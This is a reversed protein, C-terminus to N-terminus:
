IRGRMEIHPDTRPDTHGDMLMISFIGFDGSIMLFHIVNFINIYIGILYVGLDSKRRCRRVEKAGRTEKKM